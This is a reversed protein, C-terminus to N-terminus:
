AVTVPLSANFHDARGQPSAKYARAERDCDAVLVALAATPRDQAHMVALTDALLQLPTQTNM